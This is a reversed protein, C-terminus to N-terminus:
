TCTERRESVCTSRSSHRASRLLLLLVLLACRLNVSFRSYIVHYKRHELHHDLSSSFFGFAGLLFCVHAPCPACSHRAIFSFCSFFIVALLMLIAYIHHLVTSLTYSSKIYYTNSYHSFTDCWRRVKTVIEHLRDSVCARYVSPLKVIHCDSSIEFITRCFARSISVPQWWPITAWVLRLLLRWYLHLHHSLSSFIYFEAFANLM